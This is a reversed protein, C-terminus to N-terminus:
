VSSIGKSSEEFKHNRRSILYLILLLYPVALTPVFALMSTVGMTRVIAAMEWLSLHVLALYTTLALFASLTIKFSIRGRFLVYTSFVIIGAGGYISLSDRLIVAVLYGIIISYLTWHLKLKGAIRRVSVELWKSNMKWRNFVQLLLYVSSIPVIVQVFVEETKVVDFQHAAYMGLSLFLILNILKVTHISLGMWSTILLGTLFLAASYTYGVFYTALSVILCLLVIDAEIWAMVSKTSVAGAQDTKEAPAPAETPETVEIQEKPEVAEVAEVAEITAKTDETDETEIKEITEM